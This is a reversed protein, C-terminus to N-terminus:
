KIKKPFKITFELNNNTDLSCSIDGGIQLFYLRCFGLGPIISEGQKFFFSSFVDNNLTSTSIDAIHLIDFLPSDETWVRITGQKSLKIQQDEYSIIHYFLPDMFFPDANLLFNPDFSMQILQTDIKSKLEPQNLADHLYEQITRSPFEHQELFLQANMPHLREATAFFTGVNEKLAEICFKINKFDNKDLTISVTENRTPPEQLAAVKPLLIKELIENSLKMCAVRNGLDHAICDVMRAWSKSLTNRESQSLSPTNSNINM